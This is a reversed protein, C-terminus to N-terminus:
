YSIQIYEDSSGFIIKDDPWKDLPVFLHTRSWIRSAFLAAAGKIAQPLLQACAHRGGFSVRITVTVVKLHFTM